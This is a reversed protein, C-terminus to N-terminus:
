SKSRCLREKLELARANAPDRTLIRNVIGLAGNKEGQDALIEAMTCTEWLSDSRKLRNPAIKQLIEEAEQHGPIERLIGEVIDLVRAKNNLDWYIKALVLRGSVLDPFRKLGKECIERAQDLFGSGRCIEALPVFLISNNNREWVKFYRVFYPHSLLQTPLNVM